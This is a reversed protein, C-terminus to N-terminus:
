AFRADAEEAVEGDVRAIIGEGAPGVIAGGGGRGGAEGEDERFPFVAPEEDFMVGRRRRGRRGSSGRLELDGLDLSWLIELSWAEVGLGPRQLKTM